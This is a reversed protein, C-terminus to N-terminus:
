AAGKQIMTAESEQKRIGLIQARQLNTLFPSSHVAADAAMELLHGQARFYRDFVHAILVVAIACAGLTLSATPFGSHAAQRIQYAVIGAVILVGGVFIGALRVTEAFDITAEAVRYLHEYRAMLAKSENGSASFSLVTASSM